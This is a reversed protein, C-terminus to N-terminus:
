GNSEIERNVTKTYEIYGDIREFGLNAYLGAAGTPNESDVELTAYDLGESAFVKMAECIVISALSRGRHTRATGVGEIWGETYGKDDADHPYVACIAYSVPRDDDDLIAFSADPRSFETERSTWMDLTFPQSGRHDAFAENRLALADHVPVAAHNVLRLGDPVALDPIPITLDRRLVDFHVAPTFGRREILATHATQAPYMHQHYRIPLADALGALREVARNEWWDLAFTMMAETRCDPHVYNDDYVKWSETGEPVLLNWLSVVIRGDLVGVLTDDAVAGIMPTEFRDRVESVTERYGGDIEFCADQIM